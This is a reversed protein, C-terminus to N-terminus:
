NLVYSVNDTVRVTNLRSVIKQYSKPTRDFVNRELDLHLKSKQEVFTVQAYRPHAFLAIKRYCPARPHIVVATVAIHASGRPAPGRTPKVRRAAILRALEFRFPILGSSYM